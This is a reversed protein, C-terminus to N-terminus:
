NALLRQEQHKSLCSNASAILLERNVNFFNRDLAEMGRRTAEM